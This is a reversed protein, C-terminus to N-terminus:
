SKRIKLNIGKLLSAMFRAISIPTLYQSYEAKNKLINNLDVREKDLIEITKNM